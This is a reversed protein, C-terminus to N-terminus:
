DLVAVMQNALQGLDIAVDDFPENVLPYNAACAQKQRKGHACFTLWRM